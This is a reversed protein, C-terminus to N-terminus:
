EKIELSNSSQADPNVLQTTEYAQLDGYVYM